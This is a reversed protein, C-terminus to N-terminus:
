GRVQSKSNEQFAESLTVFSAKRAQHLAFIKDVIDSVGIKDKRRLKVLSQPDRYCQKAEKYQEPHVTNLFVHIPHVNLLYVGTSESTMVDWNPQLQKWFWWNDGWSIKMEMLGENMPIYDEPCYKSSTWEIGFDRLLDQDCDGWSLRHPRIGKAGPFRKALIDLEERASGREFNPHWAVEAQDYDPVKQDETAFFTYPIGAKQLRNFTFEAVEPHAWDADVCLCCLM